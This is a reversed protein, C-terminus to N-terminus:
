KVRTATPASKKKETFAGAIPALDELELLGDKMQEVLWERDEPDTVLREIMDLM